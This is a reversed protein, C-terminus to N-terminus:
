KVAVQSPRSVEFTAWVKECGIFVTAVAFKGKQGKEEKDFRDTM